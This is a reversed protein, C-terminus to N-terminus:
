KKRVSNYRLMKRVSNYPYVWLEFDSKEPFTTSLLDLTPPNTGGHLAYKYRNMFPFGFLNMKGYVGEDVYDVDFSEGNIFVEFEFSNPKRHIIGESAFLNFTEETLSVCDCGSNLMGKTRVFKSNKVEAVKTLKEEYDKTSSNIFYNIKEFEAHKQIFFSAHIYSANFSTNTELVTKEYENAITALPFLGSDKLDEESYQFHRHVPKSKKHQHFNICDVFVLFLLIISLSLKSMRKLNQTFFRGPHFLVIFVTGTLSSREVFYFM